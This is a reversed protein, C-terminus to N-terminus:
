MIKSRKALLIWQLLAQVRFMRGLGVVYVCRIPYFASQDLDEVTGEGFCFELSALSWLVPFFLPDQFRHPCCREFFKLSQLTLSWVRKLVHSVSKPCPQCSLLFPLSLQVPIGLESPEGFHRVVRYIFHFPLPHLHLAEVPTTQDPISVELALNCGSLTSIM